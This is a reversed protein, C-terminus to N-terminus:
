SIAGRQSKGVCASLFPTGVTIPTKQELNSIEHAFGRSIGQRPVDVFMVAIQAGEKTLSFRFAWRFFSLAHPKKDRRFPGRLWSTENKREIRTRM